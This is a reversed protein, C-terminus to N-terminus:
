FFTSKSNYNYGELRTHALYHSVLIYSRLCVFETGNFKLGLKDYLPLLIILYGSCVSWQKTVFFNICLSIFIFCFKANRLHFFSKELHYHHLMGNLMYLNIYKLFAYM